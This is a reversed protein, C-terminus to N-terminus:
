LSEASPIDNDCEDVSSGDPFWRGAKVYQRLREFDAPFYEKMLEYRRSGTFNFIYDPYKEFLPFNDEMTHRLFDQIVEPYTWRWQTDLHAYGVEYLTPSTLDVKKDAARASSLFFLILGISSLIGRKMTSSRLAATRQM